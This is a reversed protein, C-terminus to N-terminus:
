ATIPERNDHKDELLKLMAPANDMRLMSMIELALARRGERFATAHPDHTFSTSYVGARRVIDHLTATGEPTAFTSRYNEKLKQIRKLTTLEERHADDQIM